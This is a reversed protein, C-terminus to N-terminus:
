SGGPRRGPRGGPPQPGRARADVAPALLAAGLGCIPRARSRRSKPRGGVSTSIRDAPSGATRVTSFRHSRAVSLRQECGVFHQHDISGASNASRVGSSCVMRSVLPSAAIEAACAQGRPPPSRCAPGPRPSRPWRAERRRRRGGVPSTPPWRGWKAGRALRTMKRNMFPAGDCTSVKSGLGASARYAPCGGGPPRSRSVSPWRHEHGRRKAERGWPSLPQDQALQERIQGAVGVVQAHDPRHVGVLRVVLRPQQHHVRAVLLRRPRAQPRPGGVAEARLVPVQRREHDEAGAQGHDARLEPRAREQGALVLAHRDVRVVGVDVPQDRVEM